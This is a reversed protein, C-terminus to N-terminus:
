YRDRWGKVYPLDFCHLDGEYNGMPRQPGSIGSQALCLDVSLTAM